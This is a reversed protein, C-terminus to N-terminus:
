EELITKRILKWLVLSLGVALEVMMITVAYNRLKDFLVLALVSELIVFLRARKRHYIREKENIPKNEDPLPAYQFVVFTVLLLCVVFLWFPVLNSFLKITVLSGILMIISLFFCKKSSSAHYGGTEGRLLKFCILFVLSEWFSGLLLGIGLTMIVAGVYTKLADIGFCYLETDEKEIIGNSVMDEVFKLKLKEYM